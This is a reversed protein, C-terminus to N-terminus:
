FRRPIDLAIRKIGFWDKSKVVIKKHLGTEEKHANFYNIGFSIDPGYSVIQIKELTPFDHAIHSTAEAVANKYQPDETFLLSGTLGAISIDKCGIGILAALAEYTVNYFFDKSPRETNGYFPKYSECNPTSVLAIAKLTPTLSQTPIIDITPLQEKMLSEAYFRFVDEDIGMAQAIYQGHIGLDNFGWNTEIMLGDVGSNLEIEKSIREFIIELPARHPLELILNKVKTSNM